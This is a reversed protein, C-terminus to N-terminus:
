SQCRNYNAGALVKGFVKAGFVNAEILPETLGSGKIYKGICHQVCKAMHFTGMM